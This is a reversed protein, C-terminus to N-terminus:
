LIRFEFRHKIAILALAKEQRVVSDNYGVYHRTAVSFEFDTVATDPSSYYYISGNHGVTIGSIGSYDLLANIDELSPPMGRPHNHILLVSEGRDMARKIDNNFKDTRRVGFDIHQDTIKSIDKGETLSIAYIEETKKGDRNKLANRARQAALENATKNDCIAGFRETYEKSKVIEWNVGYEGNGKSRLSEERM